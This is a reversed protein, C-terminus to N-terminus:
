RSKVGLCEKGQIKKAAVIEMVTIHSSNAFLLFKDRLTMETLTRVKKIYGNNM